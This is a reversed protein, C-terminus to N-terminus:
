CHDTHVHTAHRMKEVSGAYYGAKISKHRGDEELVSVM